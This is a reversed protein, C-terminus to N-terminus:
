QDFIIESLAIKAIDEANCPCKDLWGSGNQDEPKNKLNSEFRLRDVVKRKDEPQNCPHEGPKKESFCERGTCVTDDGVCKQNLFYDETDAQQRNDREKGCQDNM